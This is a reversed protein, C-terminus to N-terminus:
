IFILCCAYKAAAPTQAQLHMAAFNTVWPVAAQWQTNRARSAAEAFKNTM